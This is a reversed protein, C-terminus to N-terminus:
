FPTQVPLAVDRERFTLVCYLAVSIFTVYSHLEDPDSGPPWVAVTVVPFAVFTPALPAVREAVNSFM